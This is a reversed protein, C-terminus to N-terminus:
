GAMSLAQEMQMAKMFAEVSQYRDDPDKAMARQIAIAVADPIEPVIAQPDPAPQNVHGFLIKGTGGKFPLEGTLMQYLMVALAYIDTRHDVARGEKIQEPSMYAITGMADLGTLTSESDLLKALGFDMLVAEYANNTTRLMVNSPKVDRHVLGQEHAYTLASAINELLSWTEQYSLSQREELYDALSLGEIHEMAIYRLGQIEGQSYFQIIYPHQLQGTLESEREFRQCALEDLRHFQSLIKLAVVRGHYLARYIESMGGRAMLEQVQFGDITRGSLAGLEELRMDTQELSLQNLDFRFGYVHHDIAHQIQQRTPEFMAVIFVVFGMLLLTQDITPFLRPLSQNFIMFIVSFVIALAVFVGGYVLSRNIFLDIDYLRYRTMAFIMSVALMIGGVEDLGASLIHLEPPLVIYGIIVLSIGTVVSTAGFIFWKFQQKYTSNGVRYRQIQGWIGIACVLLFPVLLGYGLAFSVSQTSIWVRIPEIIAILLALYRGWRPFFRGDPLTFLILISLVGPLVAVVLIVHLLGNPVKGAIEIYSGGIIAGLSAALMGILIAQPARSRLLIFIALSFFLFEGFRRIISRIWAMIEPAIGPLKSNDIVFQYFIPINVLVVMASLALIVWGLLRLLGLGLPNSKQKTTTPRHSMVM